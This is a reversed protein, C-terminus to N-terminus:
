SRNPLMFTFEVYTGKKLQRVSCTGGHLEVINKAIALGLGTGKGNRSKDARYFSEWIKELEEDKLPHELTNGITVYSRSARKYVEAKVTGGEPTYLVANSVFNLIAQYIRGEDAIVESDESLNLELKLAKEKILQDMTEFVAEVMMRLDCLEGSLKVRGAELRSLDLMELVMGDMRDIESFIINYYEDRKEDAIHEKLGETYSHIIALPTKLEHAINSTLQRRNDEAKQAYSIATKLRRIENDKIWFQDQAETYRGRLEGIETLYGTKKAREPLHTFGTKMGENVQRVPLILYSWLFRNLLLWLVLCLLFGAVYTPVLRNVAMKMPYALYATVMTFERNEKSPEEKAEADYDYFSRADIKLFRSLEDAEEDMSSYYVVSDAGEKLNEGRELIFTLLNEYKQGDFTVTDGMDYHTTHYFDTYVTCVEGKIDSPNQGKEEILTEWPDRSHKGEIKVPIMQTGHFYGTIRLDMYLNVNVDAELINNEDWIDNELESLDIWAYRQEDGSLNNSPEEEMGYRFFLYDGSTHVVQNEKDYFVVATQIPHKWYGDKGHQEDIHTLNAWMIGELMAHDVIGPTIKEREFMNEYAWLDSADVVQHYTNVVFDSGNSKTLNLFHYATNKTYMYMVSAWLFLFIGATLLGVATKASIKGYSKQPKKM